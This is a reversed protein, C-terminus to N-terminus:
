FELEFHSGFFGCAFNRDIHWSLFLEVFNLIAASFSGYIAAMFGLGFMITVQFTM